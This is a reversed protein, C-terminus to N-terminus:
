NTNLFIIKKFEKFKKNSITEKDMSGNNALAKISISKVFFFIELKKSKFLIFLKSSVNM